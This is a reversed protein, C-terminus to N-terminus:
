SLVGEESSAGVVGSRFMEPLKTIRLFPLPMQRGFHDRLVVRMYCEFTRGEEGLGLGLGSENHYIYVTSLFLALLM